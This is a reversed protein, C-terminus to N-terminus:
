YLYRFGPHKQGLVSAELETKGELHHDDRGAAKQKNERVQWYWLALALLCQVAGGVLNLTNGSHGTLSRKCVVSASEGPIQSNKPVPDNLKPIYTWSVFKIFM